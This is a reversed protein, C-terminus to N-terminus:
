ENYVPRETQTRRHNLAINVDLEHCWHVIVNVFIACAEVDGEIVTTGLGLAGTVILAGLLLGLATRAMNFIDM